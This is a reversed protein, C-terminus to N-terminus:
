ACYLGSLLELKGLSNVIVNISLGWVVSFMMVSAIVPWVTRVVRLNVRTVDIPLVVIRRPVGRRLIYSRIVRGKLFFIVVPLIM